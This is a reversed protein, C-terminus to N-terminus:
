SGQHLCSSNNAGNNLYWQTGNAPNGAYGLWAPNNYSGSWHVNILAFYGGSCGGGGNPQLIFLSGWAGGSGTVTNNCFGSFEAAKADGSLNANDGVCSQSTNFYQLQVILLGAPTGPLPCNVNTLANGSNCRGKVPQYDFNNNAVDPQFTKVLPGGNFANLCKHNSSQDCIQHAVAGAPQATPVITLAAGAAVAAAAVIVRLKFHM